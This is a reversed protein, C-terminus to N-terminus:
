VGCMKSLVRLLLEWFGIKEVSEEALIHAEGVSAGDLQYVIKGIPDGKQIPASLSDPIETVYQIRKADNKRMVDCFNEVAVHCESQVGGLIRIPELTIKPAHYVTYNSFGWDLLKTAIQNRVDSTPAGMVVCILTMGNRTATASICFGAKSTSGTKLGTAGKYFRVLRNTNTLGFTGDRITDMWIASYETIKDHKILERSMIAIDRASTVHNEATDDLGNTNEFNTNKM